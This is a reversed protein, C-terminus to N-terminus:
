NAQQKNTQKNKSFQCIKNNPNNVHNVLMIAIDFLAFSQNPQIKVLKQFLKDFSIDSM